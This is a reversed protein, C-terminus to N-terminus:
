VCPQLNPWHEGDTSIGVSFSWNGTGTAQDLQVKLVGGNILPGGSTWSGVGRTLRLEDDATPIGTGSASASSRTGSSSSSVPTGTVPEAIFRPPQQGDMQTCLEVSLVVPQTTQPLSITLSKQTSSISFTALRNLQLIAPQPQAFSLSPSQILMTFVLLLLPGPLNFNIPPIRM